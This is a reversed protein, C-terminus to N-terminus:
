ETGMFLESVMKPHTTDRHEDHMQDAKRAKPQTEVAPQHSMKALAHAIMAQLGPEEFADIRLSVAPGSFSRRLRGKTTIVSKNLPSLEFVEVNISDDVKSIMVGANQTRRHLLITGGKALKFLARFDHSLHRGKKCLNRLANGLKGESVSGESGFSERTARLNTIMTIVSNIIDNQDYTAHGKFKL